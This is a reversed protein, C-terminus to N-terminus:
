EHHGGTPRELRGDSHGAPQRGNNHSRNDSLLELLREQEVRLREHLMAILPEAARAADQETRYLNNTAIGFRAKGRRVTVVPVELADVPDEIFASEAELTGPVLYWVKQGELREAQFIFLPATLGCSPCQAEDSPSWSFARQRAILHGSGRADNPATALHVESSARVKAEPAKCRPCRVTNESGEIVIENGEGTM